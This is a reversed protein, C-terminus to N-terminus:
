HSIKMNSKVSTRLSDIFDSQELLGNGNLANGSKENRQQLLLSQRASQLPAYQAHADQSSAVELFDSQAQYIRLFRMNSRETNAYLASVADVDKALVAGGYSTIKWNGKVQQLTAMGVPTQHVTIVFRWEGTPQAMSHLDGSGSLIDNPKVTYIPFGYALKADELDHVDAVDLPFGAPSAGTRGHVNFQVFQAFDHQAATRVMSAQEPTVALASANPQALVPMSALAAGIGVMLTALLTKKFISKSSLHM